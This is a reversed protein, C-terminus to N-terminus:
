CNGAHFKELEDTINKERHLSLSLHSLKEPKFYLDECFIIGQHLLDEKETRTLSTLCTIPYLKYRDIREKIGNEKPYDWGLLHQGICKGYKLADPSFRTNTIIWSSLKRKDEKKWHESLDVFRSRIYLPVKVDSVKGPQSHSKCEGLIVEEETTAMVDIEHTICRGQLIRGTKVTYGEVKFLRSVFQEFVFGDPGLEMIAKKLQYKAAVYKSRQKLLNFALRYIKKTSIGPYLRPTIEEIVNAIVEEEAGANRMSTQLKEISFVDKDGGAKTVILEKLDM